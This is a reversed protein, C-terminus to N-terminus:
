EGSWRKYLDHEVGMQDLVKGVVFDIIEEVTKPNTYFAPMAPVIRAGAEQASLLNKIHIRNLPTERPVVVLRRGEKLTVDATREILTSSLGNAVAALTAMSCPVIVMGETVHSGSCVPAMFDDDRYYKIHEEADVVELWDAIAEVADSENFSFGLEHAIVQKGPDSILLSINFGAKLLEELLRKGYISGSAGTIAVTYESAKNFGRL